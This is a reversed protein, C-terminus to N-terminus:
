AARGAFALVALAALVLTALAWPLSAAQALFGIFPPGALFGISGMSSVAAIGAGAAVDPRSGAASFMLPVGNSVGLGVAFLGAVAAPVTGIALMAALAAGTVIAGARLLRARGIRRNVADGILRGATMGATFVAFAAAALAASSGVDRRLYLGGWDGMAGETVMTLFCLLALVVVARPPRAFRPAAAGEAAVGEGARRTAALVGCLLLASAVAVGARPDIGAAAVAAAFGSGAAGGLSWGAHLSSMIPRGAAREVHVGHANMAVDMAASGAGFAMLAPALLWPRPALVPLNVALACATGGALM